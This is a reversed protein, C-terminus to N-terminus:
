EHEGKPVVLPIPHITEGAYRGGGRGCYSEAAYKHLAVFVIRGKRNVVAYGIQPKM